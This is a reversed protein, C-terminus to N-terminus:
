CCGKKKGKKVKRQAAYSVQQTTVPQTPPTVVVAEQTQAVPVTSAAPLALFSGQSAPLATPAAYMPAVPAAYTPAVPAAYTQAVYPTPTVPPIHQRLPHQMHQHLPRQM